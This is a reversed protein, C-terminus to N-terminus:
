GVPDSVLRLCPQAADRPAAPAPPSATRFFRGLAPLLVASATLWALAVSSLVVM